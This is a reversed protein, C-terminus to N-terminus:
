VQSGEEKEFANLAAFEHKLQQAERRRIFFILVLLSPLVIRLVLRSRVVLSNWTLWLFLVTAVVLRWKLVFTRYQVGLEKRYFALCASLGMDPSVIQPWLIKKYTKHTIASILIMLAVVIVRASVYRIKVLAIACLVLLVLSLVFALILNRRVRTQFEDAMARVEEEPITTHDRGQNQWIVSLDDPLKSTM